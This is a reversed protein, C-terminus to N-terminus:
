SPRRTVSNAENCADPYDGHGSDCQTVGRANVGMPECRNQPWGEERAEHDSLGGALAAKYRLVAESEIESQTTM